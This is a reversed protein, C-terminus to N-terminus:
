QAETLKSKLWLNVLAEASVGQRQAVERIKKALEKEVAFYHVAGKLNVDFQVEQVDDYDLFSHGEWFESAERITMNEPVTPKKQRNRPM